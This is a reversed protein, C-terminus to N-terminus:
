GSHAAALALVSAPARSGLTREMYLTIAVFIVGAFAYRVTAHLLPFGHTLIYKTM